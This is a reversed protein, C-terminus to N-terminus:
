PLRKGVRDWRIGGPGATSFWLMIPKGKLADASVIRWPREGRRYDQGVVVSGAPVERTEGTKVTAAAAAPQATQWVVDGAREEFRQCAESVVRNNPRDPEVLTCEGALPRREIGRPVGDKLDFSGPGVMLVRGFALEDPRDPNEYAVLDGVRAPKRSIRGAFPVTTGYSTKDIVAFDGAEFTPFMSGDGVTENATLYRGLGAVLALYLVVLLAAQLLLKGVPEPAPGGTRIFVVHVASALRVLMEAVPAIPGVVIVGAMCVLKAAFWFFAWGNRQLLVHGAGPQIASLLIAGV